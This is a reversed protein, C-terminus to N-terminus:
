TAKALAWGGKDRDRSYATNSLLGDRWLDWCNALVLAVAAFTGLLMLYLRDPAGFRDSRAWQRFMMSQNIRTDRVQARM